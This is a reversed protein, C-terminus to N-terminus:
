DEEAVVPIGFEQGSTRPINIDEENLEDSWDRRGKVRKVKEGGDENWDLSGDDLTSTTRM